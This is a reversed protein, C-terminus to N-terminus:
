GALREKVTSWAMEAAVGLRWLGHLPMPRIPTVPLDLSDPPAGAARRALMRGVATAMAVGRGNYGLAITLGPEPEHLHPLEDPTVAVQGNWCHTWRVSALAPFLERAHRVLVTYDAPAHTDHMVSRGGMLFRGAEDVRYYIYRASIEYLSARSPLTAAALDPPLPESATIGSYVPVISQALGSVLPGTYGNTGIVVRGSRVSGQPTQLLWGQGERRLSLVPTGGCVRAGAQRAAAALGRAYSLPNLNGGRRDLMVGRYHGTGTLRRSEEADLWAVDAGRAAWQRVTERVKKEAAATPAARITGSNQAHCAIGLRSCLAFVLGPADHGLRVMRGGLDTGFREELTDPEHKLGPNVQGGNRGSAGWGPENAELVVCSVGQEALHLATSLGTFGGGVVAVETVADGALPDLPAAPIATDAYLSPPLPATPFSTPALHTM